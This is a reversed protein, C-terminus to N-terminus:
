AAVFFEYFKHLNEKGESKNESFSSFVNFSICAKLYAVSKKLWGLNQKGKEHISSWIDSVHQKICLKIM